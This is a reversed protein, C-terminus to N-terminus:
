LNPPKLTYHVLSKTMMEEVEAMETDSKYKHM